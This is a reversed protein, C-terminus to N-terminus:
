LNPTQLRAHARYGPNMPKPQPNPYPGKSLSRQISRILHRVSYLQSETNDRWCPCHFVKSKKCCPARTLQCGSRFCRAAFEKKVRKVEGSKCSEGGSLRSHYSEDRSDGLRSHGKLQLTPNSRNQLNKRTQDSQLRM